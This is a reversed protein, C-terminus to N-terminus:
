QRIEMTGLTCQSTLLNVAVRNPTQWSSIWETLTAASSRLWTTRLTVLRQDNEM